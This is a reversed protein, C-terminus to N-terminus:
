AHLVMCHQSVLPHDVGKRNENLLDSITKKKSNEDHRFYNWNACYKHLKTESWTQGGFPLIYKHSMKM